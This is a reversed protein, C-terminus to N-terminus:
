KILRVVNRSRKTAINALLKTINDFRDKKTHSSYVLKISGIGEGERESEIINEDNDVSFLDFNLAILAAELTAKVLRPELRNQEFRPNELNQDDTLKVSRFIYHTDIFDTARVLAKQKANTDLTTWLDSRLEFYDDADAVSVYSNANYIGSGDEVIITMFM